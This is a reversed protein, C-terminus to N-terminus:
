KAERIVTEVVRMSARPEKDISMAVMELVESIERSTMGPLPLKQMENSTVEITIIAYM